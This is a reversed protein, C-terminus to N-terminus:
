NARKAKADPKPQEADRFYSLAIVLSQMLIMPGSVPRFRHIHADDVTFCVTGHRALPSSPVDTVTLTPIGRIHADRVVEVVTPAYEAFSIAVLL